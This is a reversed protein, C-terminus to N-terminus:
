GPMRMGGSRKIINDKNKRLIAAYEAGFRISCFKIAIDVQAHDFQDGGASQKFHEFIRDVMAELSKGVDRWVRDVIANVALSERATRTAALIYLGNYAQLVDAPDLHPASGNSPKPRLM